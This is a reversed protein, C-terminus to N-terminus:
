PCPRCPSCAGQDIWRRIVLKEREDLRPLAGPPMSGGDVSTRLIGALGALIGDCTDYTSSGDDDEFASPIRAFGVYSLKGSASHCAVCARDLILAVEDYSPALPAAAPDVSSLPESGAGCGALALLALLIMGRAIVRRANAGTKSKRSTM